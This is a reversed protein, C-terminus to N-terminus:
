LSRGPSLLTEGDVADCKCLTSLLTENLVWGAAAAAPCLFLLSFVVLFSRLLQLM